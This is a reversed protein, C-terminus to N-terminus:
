YPIGDFYGIDTAWELLIATTRGYKDSQLQTKFHTFADKSSNNAGICDGPLIGNVSNQNCATEQTLVGSFYLFDQYKLKTFLGIKYWQESNRGNPNQTTPISYIQPIPFIDPYVNIEPLDYSVEYIDEQTWTYNTSGLPEEYNLKTVTDCNGPIVNPQFQPDTYPYDPPCTGGTSNYAYIIHYANEGPYNLAYGSLWIKVTSPVRWSSYNGPEIDIGGYISVQNSGLAVNNLWYKLGTTSNTGHIMQAWARGHEGTVWLGSSSTGVIVTLHSSQNSVSGNLYGSVFSKVSAEIDSIFKYTSYDFLLTGYVYSGNPAIFIEPSGFFLIVVDNIPTSLKSHEVGRLYGLDYINTVTRVYYSRGISSSSKLVPLFARNISNPAISVTPTPTGGPPPYGNQAYVTTVVLTQPIPLLVVILFFFILYIYRSKKIEM